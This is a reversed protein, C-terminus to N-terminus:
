LVNRSLRPPCSSPTGWLIPPLHFLRSRGARCVQGAEDSECSARSLSKCAWATLEHWEM